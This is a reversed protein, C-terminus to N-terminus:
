AESLRKSLVLRELETLDWTAMVAYLDGGVKRLLMPDRPMEEWAAEWLIHYNDLDSDPRIGPPILPVVARLRGASRERAFTEHPLFVNKRTWHSTTYEEPGFVWVDDWSQHVFWVIKYSARCIALRPRAREDVGAYRMVEVINLLANGRALERFGDKLVKDEATHRGRCARLYEARKKRAELRPMTITQVDM